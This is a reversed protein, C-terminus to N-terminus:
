ATLVAIMEVHHTQSFMDLVQVSKLKYGKQVLTSLDRTLTPLDCSVYVIKNVKATTFHEALVRAGTRPPDLLVTGRAALRKLFRECSSVHFQVKDAVGSERAQQEGRQVLNADIEVATVTTGRKALPISFNGAGAYFDMVFDTKALHGCVTEVLLDNAPQNIQSFGGALFEIPDCPASHVQAWVIRELERLAFHPFLSVLAASDALASQLSVNERVTAIVSVTGAGDEVTLASLSSAVSSALSRLKTLALNIGVTSVVCQTIPIIVGTSERYFGLDGHLNLHFTARRRYEYAPLDKGILEVASPLQLKGQRQLMSEVMERKAERSASISLHQLDCGGCTTFYPCPAAVRDASPEIVKELQGTLFRKEETLIKVTVLEGPACFPVFVKKQQEGEPTGIFSGGFCLSKIRVTLPSAPAVSHDSNKLAPAPPTSSM